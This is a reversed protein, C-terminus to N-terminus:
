VTRKIKTRAQGGVNLGLYYFKGNIQGFTMYTNYGINDCYVVDYPENVQFGSDIIGCTNKISKPPLICLFYDYLDEDIEDFAEAFDTFSCPQKQWDKLMKIKYQERATCEECWESEKLGCPSCKMPNDM